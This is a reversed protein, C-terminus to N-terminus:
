LFQWPAAGRLLVPNRIVRGTREGSSQKWKGEAEGAWFNSLQIATSRDEENTCSGTKSAWYYAATQAAVADLLATSPFGVGWVVPSGAFATGGQHAWPQKTALMLRVTTVPSTDYYLAQYEFWDSAPSTGARVYGAFPLSSTDGTVQVMIEGGGATAYGLQNVLGAEVSVLSPNQWHEIKVYAGHCGAVDDFLNLRHDRLTWGLAPEDWPGNNGCSWWVNTVHNINFVSLDLHASGPAVPLILYFKNQLKDGFAALVNKAARVLQPDTVEPSGALTACHELLEETTLVPTNNFSM